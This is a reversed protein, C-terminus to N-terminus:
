LHAGRGCGSCGFWIGFFNVVTFGGVRSELGWFGDNAVCQVLVFMRVVCCPERPHVNNLFRYPVSDRYAKTTLFLSALCGAVYGWSGFGRMFGSERGRQVM